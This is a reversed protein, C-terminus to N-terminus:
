YGVRIVEHKGTLAQEIKASAVFIVVTEILM